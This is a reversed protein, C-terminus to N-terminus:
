VAPSDSRIEDLEAGDLQLRERAREGALFAHGCRQLPVELGNVALRHTKNGRLQSLLM